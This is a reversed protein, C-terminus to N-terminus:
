TYQLSSQTRYLVLTKQLSDHFDHKYSAFESQNLDWQAKSIGGILHSFCIEQQTQGHYLDQTALATISDTFSINM